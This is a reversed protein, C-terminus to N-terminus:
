VAGKRTGELGSFGAIVDFLEEDISNQREHSYTQRLDVLMDDINRDARQMAALRSANESALSEACARFFSVFLYERILAHVTAGAGAVIEPITQTPWRTSALEKLWAADFPLLREGVPEYSAGVTPRNHFLRLEAANGVGLGLQDSAVVIKTMVAPIGKVSNPVPFVGAPRLGADALAAGVREGVAWYEAKAAREGLAELAHAAIVENFRGVMGQDSGFVIVGLRGDRAADAGAGDVGLERFCVSLGMTVTRYYDALALVSQQFQVVNSAALAKMTRVVAKLDSASDIKHGLAVLSESM